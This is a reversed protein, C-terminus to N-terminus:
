ELDYQEKLCLIIEDLDCDNLNMFFKWCKGHSTFVVKLRVPVLRRKTKQQTQTTKM